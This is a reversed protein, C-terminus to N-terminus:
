AVVSKAILAVDAFCTLLSISVSLLSGSAMVDTDAFHFM